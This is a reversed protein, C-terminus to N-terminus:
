EPPRSVQPRLLRPPVESDQFLAPALDYFYRIRRFKRPPEVRLHNYVRNEPRAHSPSYSLRLRSRNVQYIRCFCVCTRENDRHVDRRPQVRLRADDAAALWLFRHPCVERNGEVAGLLAQKFATNLLPYSLQHNRSNPNRLPQLPQRTRPIQPLHQLSSLSSFSSWATM